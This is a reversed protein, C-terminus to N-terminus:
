LTMKRMWLRASSGRAGAKSTGMGEGFTDSTRALEPLCAREVNALAKGVRM